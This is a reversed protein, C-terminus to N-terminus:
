QNLYCTPIPRHYLPYEEKLAPLGIEDRRKDVNKCDFFPYEGPLVGYFFRKNISNEYHRDAIMAVANPTINGKMVEQKLINFVYDWREEHEDTIHMLIPILLESKFGVKHYGPFGRTEILNKVRLFDMSDVTITLASWTKKEEVDDPSLHRISQDWKLIKEIELYSITDISSWYKPYLLEISEEVSDKIIGQYSKVDFYWNTILETTAGQLIAKNTYSFFNSIDGTKLLCAAYCLNDKANSFRADDIYKKYFFIASDAKETQSFYYNGLTRFWHIEKLTNLQGLLQNSISYFIFFLLTQKKM